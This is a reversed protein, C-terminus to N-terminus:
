LSHILPSFLGSHYKACACSSRFACKVCIRRCKKAQGPGYKSNGQSLFGWFFVFFFVLLRWLAMPTRTMSAKRHKYFGTNIFHISLTSMLIVEVLHNYGSMRLIHPYIIKVKGNTREKTRLHTRENTKRDCLILTKANSNILDWIKFVKQHIENM